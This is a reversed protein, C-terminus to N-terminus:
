IGAARARLMTTRAPHKSRAVACCIAAPRCRRHIHLVKPVSALGHTADPDRLMRLTAWLLAEEKQLVLGAAVAAPASGGGGGSGASAAEPATPFHASQTHAPAWLELYQLAEQPWGVALCAAVM